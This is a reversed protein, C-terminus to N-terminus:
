LAAKIKELTKILSKKPIGAVFGTLDMEKGGFSGIGSQVWASLIAEDDGYEVKVFQMATMLGTGKKWVNEGTRLSTQHFNSDQLILNITREAESFDCHFPVKLITRPM